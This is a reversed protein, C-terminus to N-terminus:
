DQRRHWTRSIRPIGLVYCAKRKNSSIEFCLVNELKLILFLFKFIFSEIESLIILPASMWLHQFAIVFLINSFDSKLINEERKKKQQTKMYKRSYEKENSFYVFIKFLYARKEVYLRSFFVGICCIYYWKYGLVSNFYQIHYKIIYYWRRYGMVWGFTFIRLFKIWLFNFLGFVLYFSFM